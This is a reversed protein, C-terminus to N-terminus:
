LGYLIRLDGSARLELRIGDSLLLIKSVGASKLAGESRFGDALPRTLRANASAIIAQQENQFTLRVQQQLTQMLAPDNLFGTLSMEASLSADPIFAPNALQLVQADPDVQPTATLYVWDGDKTGDGPALRLGAVLKGASPYVSAERLNLGGSQARAALADQLKQRIMDYSISVPVIMFFQGPEEVDDGLRPLPTPTQSPPATGIGTETTGTMAISGELMNSRVRIGSFAMAQPTTQLWIAPTDMIPLTTFAQQWAREAKGRIDLARANAEFDAKVQALQARIRPEVYRQLNIRFGLITLTPPETWRFGESMDLSVSWDPRLRPRASAFVTMQGEATGHLRSTFRGTGQASVTGFLPTAATLRGGEARLPVGGVREIYGSYVCDVDIERGFMRRHWCETVKDNFTAIRRPVRREVAKGLASMGIEITASISSPTVAPTVQDPSLPPKEVAFAPSSVAACLLLSAISRRGKM